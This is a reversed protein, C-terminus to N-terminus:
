YNIWQIVKKQNTEMDLWDIWIKLFDFEMEKSQFPEKLGRYIQKPKNDQQINFHKGFLNSAKTNETCVPSEQIDRSEDKQKQWHHFKM